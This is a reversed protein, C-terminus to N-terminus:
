FLPLLLFSSFIAYHPAHNINSGLYQKLSSTYTPTIPPTYPVCPSFLFAYLCHIPFSHKTISINTLQLQTSVRHCYYLVCKCVFLVYFLVIFVSCVACLVYMVNLICLCLLLFVYVYCYFNM